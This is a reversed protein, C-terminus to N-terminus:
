VSITQIVDLVAPHDEPLGYHDVLFANVFDTILKRNYKDIKIEPNPLFGMHMPSFHTIALEELRSRGPVEPPFIPEAYKLPLQVLGNRIYHEMLHDPEVENVMGLVPPDGLQKADKIIQALCEYIIFVALRRGMVRVERFKPDVALSHALGCHRNRIYRFTRIGAPQGDVEILWYHVVHGERHENGFQARRRMRPVYHQYQPFLKQYLGLMKEIREEDGSGLLDYVEVKEEQKVLLASM